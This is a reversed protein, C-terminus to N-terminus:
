HGQLQICQFAVVFQHGALVAVAARHTGLQQRHTARRDVAVQTRGPGAVLDLPFRGGLSGRQLPRRDRDALCGVLDLCSRPKEFAVGDRVAPRGEFPSNARVRLRVSTCIPQTKVRVTRLLAWVWM